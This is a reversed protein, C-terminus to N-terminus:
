STLKSLNRLVPQDSTYSLSFYAIGQPYLIEFIHFIQDWLKTLESVFTFILIWFVNKLYNRLVQFIDAFTLYYMIKDLHKHLKYENIRNGLM